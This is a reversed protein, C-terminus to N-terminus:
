NKTLNKGSTFTPSLKSRLDKWEQGNLMFLHASLPDIEKNVPFGRDHFSEFNKVFIDKLLEPSTPILSPMTSAYCGFAPGQHKFKNFERITFDSMHETFGVKSMSGLPIKPNEIFPFGRQDFFSFKKKFWLYILFILFVALFILAFM